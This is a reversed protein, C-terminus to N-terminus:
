ILQNKDYNFESEIINILLNNGASNEIFNELNKVVIGIMLLKYNYPFSIILFEIFLISKYGSNVIMSIDEEIHKILSEIKFM